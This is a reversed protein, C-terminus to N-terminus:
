GPPHALRPGRTKPSSSTRGRMSFTLRCSGSPRRHRREVDGRDACFRTLTKQASILVRESERASKVVPSDSSTGAPGARAATRPPAPHGCTGHLVDGAVREWRDAECTFAQELCALSQVVDGPYECLAASRVMRNPCWPGNFRASSNVSCTAVYSRAATHSKRDSSAVGNM